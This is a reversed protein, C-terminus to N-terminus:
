LSVLILCCSLSLWSKSGPIALLVHPGYGEGQNPSYLRVESFRSSSALGNTDHMYKDVYSSIFGTVGDTKISTGDLSYLKISKVEVLSIGEYSMNIPSNLVPVIPIGNLAASLYLGPALLFFMLFYSKCRTLLM